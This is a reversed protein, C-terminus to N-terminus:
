KKIMLVLQDKSLMLLKYHIKRDGQDITLENLEKDIFYISPEQTWSSTGGAYRIQTPIKTEIKTIEKIEGSKTWATDYKISITTKTSDERPADPAISTGHSTTLIVNISDKFNFNTYIKKIWYRDKCSQKCSSDLKESPIMLVTDTSPCSICETWDGALYQYNVQSFIMPTNVLLFTLIILRM